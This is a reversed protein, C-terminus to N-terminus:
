LNCAKKATDIRMKKDPYKDEIQLLLQLARRPQKETGMGLCHAAALRIGADPFGCTYAKEYHGNAQRFLDQAHTADRAALESLRDGEAMAASGGCTAGDLVLRGRESAWTLWPNFAGTAIAGVVTTLLAGAITVLAWRALRGKTLPKADELM